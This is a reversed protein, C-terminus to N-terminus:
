LGAPLPGVVVQARIEEVSAKYWNPTTNGNLVLDGWPKAGSVTAPDSPVIQGIGTMTVAYFKMNSAAGAQFGPAPWDLVAKDTMEVGFNPRVEALGLASPKQASPQGAPLLQVTPPTSAKQIADQVGDYAFRYCGGTDINTGALNKTVEFRCANGAGAFLTKDKMAKVYTTPDRSLEALSVQIGLKAVGKTQNAQKYRAAIEVDTSTSRAAFLAVATLSVIVLVVIFLAAGRDRRRM